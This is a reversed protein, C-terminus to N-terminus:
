ATSEHHATRLIACADSGLRSGPIARRRATASRAAGQPQTSRSDSHRHHRRRAPPPVPLTQGIRHNRDQSQAYLDFRWTLSEYIAYSAATLTFGTGAAAPNAVLLKTGEDHQFRTAIAQRDESPTEGFLSVVGYQKFRDVFAKITDVYYSWLIVKRNNAEILEALLEDLEAHKAPTRTEAEFILRPNSAIDSHPLM